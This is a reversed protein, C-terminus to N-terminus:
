LVFGAVDFLVNTRSSTFIRIALGGGTDPGLRITASNAIIENPTFWNINSTAPRTTGAPYAVAFGSLETDVLTLNGVVGVANTPVAPVPTTIPILRDDNFDFKGGSGPNRSDFARQPSDLMRIGGHSVKIWAGPAGGSVCLWLVGASDVVIDGKFNTGGPPGLSGRPDLNIAADTGSFQGGVAGDGLVGIVASGFAGVTKASGILGYDANPAVVTLAGDNTIMGSTDLETKSTGLNVQGIVLNSGDAADARDARALAAGGVLGAAGLGALGLLERRSRYDVGNKNTSENDNMTGREDEADEADASGRGTPTCPLAAVFTLHVLAAGVHRLQLTPLDTTSHFPPPM